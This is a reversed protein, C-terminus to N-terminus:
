HLDKHANTSTHIHLTNRNNIRKKQKSMLLSKTIDTRSNLHKVNVYFIQFNNIM